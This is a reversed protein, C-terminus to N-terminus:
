RSSRQFYDKLVYTLLYTARNLGFKDILGRTFFIVKDINNYDGEKLERKCLEMDEWYTTEEALKTVGERVRILHAPSLGDLCMNKILPRSTKWLPYLPPIMNEICYHNTIDESFEYNSAPLNMTFTRSHKHKLEEHIEKWEKSHVDIKSDRLLCKVQMWLVNNIGGSPFMNKLM